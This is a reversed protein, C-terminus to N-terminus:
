MPIAMGPLVTKRISVAGLHPFSQWHLINIRWIFAIQTHMNSHTPLRDSVHVANNISNIKQHYMSCLLHQNTSIFTKKIWWIIRFEVKFWLRAGCLVKQWLYTEIWKARCRIKFNSVVVVALENYPITTSRSKALAYNLSSKGNTRYWQYKVWRGRPGCIHTM